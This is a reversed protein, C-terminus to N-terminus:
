KPMGAVANYAPRPGWDTRIISFARKAWRDDAEAIPAYNLNWIFM